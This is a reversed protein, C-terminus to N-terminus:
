QTHAQALDFAEHAAGDFGRSQSQKDALACGILFVLFFETGPRYNCNERIWAILATENGADVGADFAAQAAANIREKISQCM